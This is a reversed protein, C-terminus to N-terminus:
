AFGGVGKRKRRGSECVPPVASRVSAGEPPKDRDIWRLCYPLRAFGSARDRKRPRAPNAGPLFPPVQSRFLVKRVHPSGERGHSVHTTVVLKFARKSIRLIFRFAPRPSRGGVPGFVAPLQDKSVRGKTPAGDNKRRAFTERLGESQYGADTAIM